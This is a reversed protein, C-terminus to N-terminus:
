PTLERKVFQRREDSSCTDVYQMISDLSVNGRDYCGGFPGQDVDKEMKINDCRRRTNRGLPRKEDPKGVLFRYVDRMNGIRAAREAWTITRKKIAKIVNRSFSLNHLEENHLKRCRYTWINHQRTKGSPRLFFGERLCSM